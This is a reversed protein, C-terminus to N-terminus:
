QREMQQTGVGTGLTAGYGTRMATQMLTESAQQINTATAKRMLMAAVKPDLMAEVLLERVADESGRYLWNLPSIVTEITQTIPNGGQMRPHIYGLLNGMTINKFTDSGAPKIGPLNMMAGDDLEKSVRKVVSMQTKSLPNRPDAELQEVLKGFRVPTLTRVGTTPDVTGGSAKTVINQMEKIQSVPRSMTSYTKMYDSYGPAGSEIVDDIVNRVQILPGSAVNKINEYRSGVLTGDLIGAVDQRISYLRGPDIFGNESAERQLREKFGSLADQVDKRAGVRSALINDIENIVSTPKVPTANAFARERIPATIADRKAIADTLVQDATYKELLVNRALNNQALRKAYEGSAQPMQSLTREMSALGYDASAPGMTPQSGPIGQTPTEMRAISGYPDTAGRFLINGASQQRGAQTMPSTLGTYMGRGVGAASPVLMGTALGAGIQGMEGLGADRAVGTAGAASGAALTQMGLRETLPQLFRQAASSATRAAAAPAGVSGMASTVDYVNSEMGERPQPLGAMSMGSELSQSTTPFQQGTIANVLQMIPDGVMAPIAMAGRIGGRATLGAQRGLNGLVGLVGSSDQPTEEAPYAISIGPAEDYIMGTSQSSLRRVQQTIQDMGMSAPFAVEGIGPIEVIIEDM